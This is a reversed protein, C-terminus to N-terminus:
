WAIKAGPRVLKRVPKLTRGPKALLKPKPRVKPSIIGLKPNKRVIVPETAKEKEPETLSRTRIDAKKGETKEVLKEVIFSGIVRSADAKNVSIVELFQAETIKKKKYLDFIASPPLSESMSPAFRYATDDYWIEDEPQLDEKKLVEKIANKLQTNQRNLANTADRSIDKLRDYEKGEVVVRELTGFASSKRAKELSSDVTATSTSQSPM